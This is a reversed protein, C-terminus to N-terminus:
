PSLKGLAEAEKAEDEAALRDLKQILHQRATQARADNKPDYCTPHTSGPALRPFGM